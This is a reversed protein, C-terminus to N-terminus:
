QSSSRERPQHIICEGEFIDIFKNACKEWTHNKSDIYANHGLMIRLKEDNLLTKIAESVKDADPEVLLGNKGSDILEPIGGVSTALIPKGMAMAELLALSLGGEGLTIHTYINCIHLPVFPNDVWGTFLVKDLIGLDAAYENLEGLYPGNGTIMLLIEPYDSLLERLSQM